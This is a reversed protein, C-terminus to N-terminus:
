QKARPISRQDPNQVAVMLKVVYALRLVHRSQQNPPPGNPSSPTPVACAVGGVLFFSCLRSRGHWVLSTTPQRFHGLPCWCPISPHIKGLTDVGEQKVGPSDCRRGGYPKVRASFRRQSPTRLFESPEPDPHSPGFPCRQVTWKFGEHHVTLIVQLILLRLFCLVNSFM